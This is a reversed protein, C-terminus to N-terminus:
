DEIYKWHYGGARRHNSNPNAANSVRCGTSKGSYINYYEEAEACSNFVLGTEICQVKRNNSRNRCNQSASVWRLNSVYNNQVNRDIHDIEKLNEKNELFCIAVLKHVKYTNYNIRVRLYGWSDPCGIVIREPHKRGTSDKFEPHRVKGLNSIKYGVPIEPIYDNLEKWIETM